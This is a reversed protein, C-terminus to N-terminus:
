VRSMYLTYYLLEYNTRDWPILEAFYILHNFPLFIVIYKKYISKSATRRDAGAEKNSSFIM